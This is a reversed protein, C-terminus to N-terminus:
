QETKTQTATAVQSAPAQKGAAAIARTLTNLDHGSVQEPLPDTGLTAQMAGYANHLNGYSQYRRLEAFLAGVEARIEATKGQADNRVANRTHQLIRRNVDDLDAALEYQRMRGLYDRYAIHVQSLVAMNLALRQTRAVEVQAEATERIQEASLVNLLNWSVRLGADTWQNDVLFGNSDYRETLSIELGPFLRAIAKRTELVSIRENYRAEILEPRQLLATEEMQPLTGRLEPVPMSAPAVLTYPKGPELNMLAALRPKAQALEDRVAELQRLTDLLQHQYNLTELPARLKEREVRRSDALAQEVQKLLPPIKAEMQQAGLALWYAQRVQQMLSHVVKRRREKMILTRDANQQGQYYSVGFDLVNWTFGLDAVRRHKEQSTSPVLSQTGTAIDMSSSAPYSDRGAYGAAVTLKPLLDYRSLDLQRQSVAEEMLKLRHDLNYKVARAMAEEITLPGSVAEQKQFMLSRDLKLQATQEDQSLPQPTIACGTLIATISVALLTRASPMARFVTSTKLPNATVTQCSTTM